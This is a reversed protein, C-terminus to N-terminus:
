AHMKGIVNNEGFVSAVDEGGPHDHPEFIHFFDIEVFAVTTDLAEAALVDSCFFSGLRALLCLFAIHLPTKANHEGCSCEDGSEEFRERFLRRKWM